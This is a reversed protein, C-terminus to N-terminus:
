CKKFFVKTIDDSASVSPLRKMNTTKETSDETAVETLTRLTGGDKKAIKEEPLIRGTSTAAASVMADSLFVNAQLM